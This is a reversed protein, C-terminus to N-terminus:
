TPRWKTAPNRASWSSTIRIRRGSGGDGARSGQPLVAGLARKSFPAKKQWPRFYDYPQGTVNVRVLSLNRPKWSRDARRRPLAPEKKALPLHASLWSCSDCLPSLSTRMMLRRRIEPAVAPSATARRPETGHRRQLADQNARARGRGGQPDLVLPPGDGIMKIVFRDAPEAFRRPWITWPTSNEQWQDRGRHQRPLARSLYQDSRASYEDPHHGRSARPLNTRPRLFRLFPPRASREASLGRASRAVAASLASRWLRRLAPSYRLQPGPHPLALGLGLEITVRSPQKDRLIDLKVKDGKFKREVM